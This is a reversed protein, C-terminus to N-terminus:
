KKNYTQNILDGLSLGGLYDNILNALTQWVGGTKCTGSKPCSAGVCAAFKPTDGTASLIEAVTIEKADKALRYGGSAGRASELLGADKLLAAIQELYKVSINQREAVGSLSVPMEDATAIDVLVRLAYKGKTSIKM